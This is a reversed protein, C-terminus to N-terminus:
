ERSKLVAILDLSRLRRRIFFGSILAVVVITITGMGLNRMTILFPFRFLDTAFADPLLSSLFIGLGMGLPLAILTLIVQEGLLVVTIETKTFGLVRLSALENGRESLAIRASNYVVGFAIIAAFAVLYASSIDMNEKYNDDFSKMATSRLVVGGITPTRKVVDYFADIHQADVQLYAGSVSGEERLLGALSSASMYTRVGMLEDVLSTVVFPAERRDGELLRVTVTDGVRVGFSEALYTPLTIGDDPVAHYAGEM